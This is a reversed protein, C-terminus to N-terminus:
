VQLWDARAAAIFPAASEDGNKNAAGGSTHKSWKKPMYGAPM